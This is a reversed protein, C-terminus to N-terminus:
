QRELWNTPSRSTHFFGLVEIKNEIIRYHIGYPFRDIFNIRINKYREQFLFPNSVIQFLGAEICLEFDISLGVRKAEYWVVAELFDNKAPSSIMLFYMM